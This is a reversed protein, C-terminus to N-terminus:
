TSVLNIERSICFVFAYAFQGIKDKFFLLGNINCFYKLAILTVVGCSVDVLISYSMGKLYNPFSDIADYQWYSNQVNGIIGANPGYYAISISALYAITTFLDLTENLMLTTLVEQKKNRSNEIHNADGGNPNHVHIIDVLFKMNILVSIALFCYGTIADTKSGILVLIFSKFICGNEITVLGKVLSIKESLTVKALFNVMISDSTKKMVFLLFAIIWHADYNIFSCFEKVSEFIISIQLPLITIWLMYYVYARFREPFTSKSRINQPFLYWIIIWAALVTVYFDIALSFPIPANYGLGFSWLSHVLCHALTHIVALSLFFKFFITPRAIDQYDMIMKVQVVILGFTSPIGGFVQSFIPEYWYFPCLIVNHYPILTLSLFSLVCMVVVWVFRFCNQNIAEVINKSILSNQHIAIPENDPISISSPYSKVSINDELTSPSVLIREDQPESSTTGSSTDQYASDSKYEKVFIVTPPKIVKIPEEDM